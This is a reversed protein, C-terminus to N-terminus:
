PIPKLLFQKYFHLLLMQNYIKAVLEHCLEFTMHHTYNPYHNKLLSPRCMMTSYHAHYRLLLLLDEPLHTSIGFFRLHLCKYMLIWSLFSLYSISKHKKLNCRHSPSWILNINQHIIRGCNYLVVYYYSM